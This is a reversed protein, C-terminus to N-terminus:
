RLAHAPARSPAAGAHGHRAFQGDNAPLAKPGPLTLARRRLRPNFGISFRLFRDARVLSPHSGAQSRCRTVSQTVAERMNYPTPPQDGTRGVRLPTPRKRRCIYLKPHLTFNMTDSGPSLPTGIKSKKMIRVEQKMSSAVTSNRIQLKNDKKM